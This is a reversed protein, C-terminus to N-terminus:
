EKSRSVKEALSAEVFGKFLPHVAFPKSKFEPHFQGALFWKHSPLEMIEVLDLEPNIGSFRMGKAEFETRYANNFEYRHRHREYIDSEQYLQHALSDPTIQTHFSGLRMTGGMNHQQKQEEMIDIIPYATEENFETSHADSWGLQSRAFEIALCQMGLCIGFLPINNERAFGIAKIIGEVGREGFGGPILIGHGARLIQWSLEDGSEIDEANILLLQVEARVALGAHELAEYVSKYADQHSIYKGVVAISVLQRNTKRFAKAIEQWKQMDRPTDTALHLAKLVATDFGEKAFIEPMQYISNPANYASIVSAEEVDCFLSIKARVEMPLPMNSRVVIVQPHIGSKMLEKVSHQTPKSKVEDAASLHPALTLHVYAVNEVGQDRTFQRIAELYPVSEIDGVTGGVEVVHIDSENEQACLRIRNKIEDTIHPIIQVTKGLYDGRRERELVSMYVQGTTMSNKRRVQGTTFREYNGLDLDAEAGDETVYVEGHEYPSMTGPDMNLYPDIKQLSVRYGRAELLAGLSSVAVGKGLSSAVGGTVFVYKRNSM